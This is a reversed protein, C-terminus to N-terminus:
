RLATDEACLGDRPNWDLSRMFNIGLVVFITVFVLLSILDVIWSDLPTLWFYVTVIAPIFLKGLNQSSEFQKLLVLVFPLLFVLRYDFNTKCLFTFVYILCCAVAVRALLVNRDLIPLVCFLMSKKILMMAFIGICVAAAPSFLYLALRGHV